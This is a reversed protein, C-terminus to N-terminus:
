DRIDIDVKAEVFTCAIEAEVCVIAQHDIIGRELLDRLRTRESQEGRSREKTPRPPSFSLHRRSLHRFENGEGLLRSTQFVSALHPIIAAPL